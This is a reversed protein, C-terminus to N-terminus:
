RGTKGLPLRALPMTFERSRKRVRLAAERVAKSEGYAVEDYEDRHEAILSEAFGHLEYEVMAMAEDWASLKAKREIEDREDLVQDDFEKRGGVPFLRRRLIAIPM